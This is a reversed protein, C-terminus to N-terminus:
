DRESSNTARILGTSGAGAINSSEAVNRNRKINQFYGSGIPECIQGILLSLVIRSVRIEEDEESSSDEIM